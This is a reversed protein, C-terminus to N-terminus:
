STRDRATVPRSRAPQAPAKGAQGTVLSRNKLLYDLLSLVTLAVVFWLGVEIVARTYGQWHAWAADSWARPALAYGENIRLVLVSGIFWNQAFAKSKGWGSAAIVRDEQLAYRRLVTVIVERGLVLIVLWLPLLGLGFLPVFTVLVLMKDAIPDLLQGFRTIEGKERALRGDVLDSVAAAVFIWFALWRELPGPQFILWAIVPTIAIRGVTIKNPTNM